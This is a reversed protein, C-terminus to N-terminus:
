PFKIPQEVRKLWSKIDLGKKNSAAILVYAAAKADELADHADYEYGLFQCINDLGYGSRSFQYWTRRAVRASDLWTCNPHYMEHKDFAKRIAVRDFHTHCVVVENNLYSYLTDGLERFTPSKAVISKKIGHISINVADFRCQPNVYTKWEELLIGDVFKVLGIQCISSMDANATEVDIAIFNM